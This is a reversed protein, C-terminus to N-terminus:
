HRAGAAHDDGDLEVAVQHGHQVGGLRREGTGPRYVDRLERKFDIKAVTMAVRRM